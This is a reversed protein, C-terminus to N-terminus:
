MKLIISVANSKAAGQGKATAFANSNGGQLAVSDALAQGLKNSVANSQSGGGGASFTSAMAANGKSLANSQAVGTGLNM